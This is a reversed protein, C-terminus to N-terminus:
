HEEVVGDRLTWENGYVDAYRITLRLREGGFEAQTLSAARPGNVVRFLAAQQEAALVDGAVVETYYHGYGLSDLPYQRRLEDDFVTKLSPYARGDYRIDVDRILAPGVGNNTLTMGFDEDISETTLQLHPWASARQQERLIATQFIAVVLAALSLFVAAFALLRDTSLRPARGSASETSAHSEPIM